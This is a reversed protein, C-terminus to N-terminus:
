YTVSYLKVDWKVHIVNSVLRDLCSITSACVVESVVVVPKIAQALNLMLGFVNYTM